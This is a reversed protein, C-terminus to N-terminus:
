RRIPPSPQHNGPQPISPQQTTDGNSSAENPGNLTDGGEIPPLNELKRVENPTMWAPNQTGGLAKAYFDSRAAHDGRLLGTVSHEFFYAGRRFLKANLEQVIRQLHPKLTYTVFGISMEEIGAGWSTQKSTEGIMHPPVGFARAIDNVQWQRTEIIQADKASISLEQVSMGETLVLPLGNVGMGSYKELYAEILSERLEKSMKKETKFAFQPSAGNKFYTGAFEDGRIAIGIGNRAGWEIVSMSHVGNFGFCPFHLMDAQDAGFTGDPTTVYYVLRIPWRPDGGTIRKIVVQSRKLPLLGTAQGAANRIIYAPADARLLMQTVIMEWFSSATFGSVPSTNVLAEYPHDARKKNGESDREYVHIPLGAIAGAILRVCAYVAAIRMATHETVNAGAPTLGLDEFLGRLVAWSDATNQIQQTDTSSNPPFSDTPVPSGAETPLLWSRLWNFM